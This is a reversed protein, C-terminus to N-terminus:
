KRFKFFLFASVSLAVAVIAGIIFNKKKRDADTQALVNVDVPASVPSPVVTPVAPVPTPVSPVVTPVAPVPTSVSPVVPVTPTSPAVPAAIPSGGLQYQFYVARDATEGVIYNAPAVFDAPTTFGSNDTTGGSLESKDPQVSLVVTPFDLYNLGRVFFTNSQGQMLEVVWFKGSYQRTQIIVDGTPTQRVGIQQKDIAM